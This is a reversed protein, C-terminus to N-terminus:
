YLHKVGIKLFKPQDEASVHHFCLGSEWLNDEPLKIHVITCLHECVCYIFTYNNFLQTHGEYSESSMSYSIVIWNPFKLSIKWTIISM